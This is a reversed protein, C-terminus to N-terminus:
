PRVVVQMTMGAMHHNATRPGGTLCGEAVSHLLNEENVWAVTTGARVELVPPQFRMQNLRVIADDTTVTAPLEPARAACGILILCAALILALHKGM